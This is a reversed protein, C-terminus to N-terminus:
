DVVVFSQMGVQFLISPWLRAPATDNMLLCTMQQVFLSATWRLLHPLVMEKHVTLRDLYHMFCCTQIDCMKLHPYWSSVRLSCAMGSAHTLLSSLRDRALCLHRAESQRMLDQAVGWADSPRAPQGALDRCHEIISKDLM